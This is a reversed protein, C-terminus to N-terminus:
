FDLVVVRVRLGDGISSSQASIARWITFGSTTKSGSKIGICLTSSSQGGEAELLVTYNSSSLSSTFSVSYEDAIVGAPIEQAQVWSVSSVNSQSEITSDKFATSPRCTYVVKALLPSTATAALTTGSLSLGTGVVIEQAPGSSASGRGLLRSAAVTVPNTHITTGTVTLGGGFTLEQVTGSGSSGRGLVVSGASTNQIKSYSVAGTDITAIGSSLTFDGWDADLVGITVDQEDDTGDDSISISVNNGDHLNLRHRTYTTGSNVRVAHKAPSDITAASVGSLELTNRADSASSNDQVWSSGFPTLGSILGIDVGTWSGNLMGYLVSDSPAPAIGNTSGPDLPVTAWAPSVGDGQGVLVTNTTPTGTGVRSPHFVGTTVKAADLNPIDGSALTDWYPSSGAIQGRLLKATTGTGTGVRESVFTGSTVDSASHSHSVAAKLAMWASLGAVHNSQVQLWAGGLRAYMNTDSPADNITAMGGLGTITSAPQTGTHNTRNLFHTGDQGDLLDADLGSGSGDNRSHWLTSESGDIWRALVTKNTPDSLWFYATDGNPSHPSFGRYTMGLFGSISWIGNTRDREDYPGINMPTLINTANNPDINRWAQIGDVRVVYQWFNSFNGWYCGLAVDTNAGGQRGLIATSNVAGPFLHSIASYPYSEGGGFKLKGDYTAIIRPYTDRSNYFGVPLASDIGDLPPNYSYPSSSWRNEGLLILNTQGSLQRVDYGLGGSDKSFFNGAIYIARHWSNTEPFAISIGNANTGYSIRNGTIQVERNLGSLLIPTLRSPRSFSNGILSVNEFENHTGGTGEYDQFVMVGGDFINNAVQINRHTGSLGTYRNGFYLIQAADPTVFHNGQILGRSVFAENFGIQQQSFGLGSQEHIVWYNNVIEFSGNRINANWRGWSECYNGRIEVSDVIAHVDLNGMFIPAGLSDVLYEWEARQRCVNNLFKLRTSRSHRESTSVTHKCDEITNREATVGDGSLFIGYGSKDDANGADLIGIVRNDRALLSKGRLEIGIYNPDDSSGSGVVECAEVIHGEGVASIGIGDVAGSLDVRVNRVRCDYPPSVFRYANTIQQSTHPVRDLVMNTGSVSRAFAFQGPNYNPPDEIDNWLMLMDGTAFVGEPVTVLNTTADLAFNLGSLRQNVPGIRIAPKRTPGRFQITSGHFDVICNSNTVAIEGTTVYIRGPPASLIRGASMYSAAKQLAATDDSGFGGANFIRVDLVPDNRDQAIYRGSAALNTVVFVDDPTSADGPVHVFRRPKDLLVTSSTNRVDVTEGEVPRRQHLDAITDLVLIRSGSQAFAGLVCGVLLLMSLAARM